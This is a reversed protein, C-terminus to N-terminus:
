TRDEVRDAFLGAGHAVRGLYGSVVAGDALELRCRVNTAGGAGSLSLAPADDCLQHACLSVPCSFTGHVFGAEARATAPPATRAGPTKSWDNRQLSAVGAVVGAGAPLELDVQWTDAFTGPILVAAGPGIACREACPIQVRGLLCRARHSSWALPEDLADLAARDKALGAWCAAPLRFVSIPGAGGAAGIRLAFPLDTGGISPQWDLPVGLWDEVAQVHPEVLGLLTARDVDHLRNTRAGSTVDILLAM